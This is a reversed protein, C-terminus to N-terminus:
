CLKNQDDKCNNCRCYITPHHPNERGQNRIHTSIKLLDAITKTEYNHILCKSPNNTHLCPEIGLHHWTLLQAKLHTTLRITAFNVNYTKAVKLMQMTDEDLKTARKGRQPPNWIQLFCNMQVQANNGQPMTADIILDTIKAWIPHTPSLDLYTKIWM